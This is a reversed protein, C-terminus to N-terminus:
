SFIYSYEKKWVIKYGKEDLFKFTLNNKFSEKNEEHIEVCILKPKYIDFNLSELVDKETNEVDVNLFDIIKNKFRTKELINNLSLCEIDKSEYGNPFNRKAFSEDTTNLVNMKRRYFLKIKNKKQNTVALNFNYDDKRAINFLQNSLPNADINIGNWNKKYLLYTNNWFFPHYSGVDVYFGENDNEFFDKIFLDEGFCSYQKKPLFSKHKWYLNYINSFYEFM